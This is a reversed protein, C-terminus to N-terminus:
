QQRGAVEMAVKFQQALDCMWGGDQGQGQGQQAWFAAFYRVRDHDISPLVDLM